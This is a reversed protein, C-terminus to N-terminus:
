NRGEKSKGEVRGDVSCHNGLVSKYIKPLLGCSRLLGMQNKTRPTPFELVAQVRVESPTRFGQGMIHGLLKFNQQAFRCKSPKITLKAKKIRQLVTEMHKLHSKWTESFIAIDDLYPVVFDELDKLLEAMLKSFFYPANKLGFSM